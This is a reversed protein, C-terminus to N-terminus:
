TNFATKVQTLLDPLFDASLLKIERKAENERHEYEYATVIRRDASALSNYTTLDIQEYKEPIVTGDFLVQHATVLQEYHHVQENAATISGYKKVIYKNAANTSLPWDFEPDIINNTLYIVWDLSADNYYKFAITDAREGDKVSYDYYVAEQRQFSEVIKFRTMINTLLSTKQNKKIDYEILPFPRFYYAM